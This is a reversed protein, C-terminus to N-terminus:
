ILRVEVGADAKEKLIKLIPNWVNAPEITFYEMFIFKEAKKLSEMMSAVIEEGQKYYEVDSNRSVPFGGDRLIYKATLSGRPDEKQFADLAGPKQIRYDEYFKSARDLRGKFRKGPRKEGYFFYFPVGFVPFALITVIWITKYETKEHPSSILYVTFVLALFRIALVLYKYSNYLWLFVAMIWFLQLLVLFGTVYARTFILKKYKKEIKM